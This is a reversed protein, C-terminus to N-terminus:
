LSYSKVLERSINLLNVFGQVGGLVTSFAIAFGATKGDFEGEACLERIRNKAMLNQERTQVLISSLTENKELVTNQTTATTNINM